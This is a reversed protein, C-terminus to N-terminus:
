RRLGNSSKIVMKDNNLPNLGLFVLFNIAWGTVVVRPAGGLDKTGCKSKLSGLWVVLTKEYNAVSVSIRHM